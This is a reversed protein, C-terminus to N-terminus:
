ELAIHWRIPQQELIPRRKINAEGMGKAKILVREQAVRAKASVWNFVFHGVRLLAAVDEPPPANGFMTAGGVVWDGGDAPVSIGVEELDLNSHLSAHSLHRDRVAKIREHLAAYEPESSFVEMPNLRPQRSGPSFCRVYAVVTGTWLSRALTRDREGSTLLEFHRTTAEEVYHLDHRFSQYRALDRAEKFSVKYAIM